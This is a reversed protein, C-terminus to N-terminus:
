KAFSSIYTALPRANDFHIRHGAATIIELPIDIGDQKMQQWIDILKKDNGGVVWSIKQHYKKLLLRKDNQKSLSWNTLAKALLDRRFLSGDREPEIAGDAFVPQKNWKQIVAAWEDHLFSDAWFQDSVEREKKEVDQSAKFGPHTSICILREFLNPNREFIHLALRGGLSYGVLIKRENKTNSDIWNVFETAVSDFSNKPGLNPRNFYDPVHIEAETKTGSLDLKVNVVVEAWDTPVGLFGHLFIFDVKSM